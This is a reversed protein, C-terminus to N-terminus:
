RLHSLTFWVHTEDQAYAICVLKTQSIDIKSLLWDDDWQYSALVALKLRDKQLVEEIKIDDAEREYGYAWTKKVVGKHFPPSLYTPAPAACSHITAGTTKHDQGSSDQALIEHTLRARQSTPAGDSPSGDPRRKRKIVRARREEEMIKRDLLLSGFATMGPTVPLNSPKQAASPSPDKNLLGTSPNTVTNSEELSLAIARELEEDRDDADDDSSSGLEIVEPPPLGM